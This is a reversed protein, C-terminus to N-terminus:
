AALKLEPEAQDPTLGPDPQADIKSYAENPTAGGFKSHPRDANYYDIWKGLGQRLETGTEFAHIYVCEYKLSRWLREIFVNDMWRGKGDMSVQVKAELLVDVFGPCTFQSGQDTNFIAPKGYTVMAEQLAEICFDAEMSSSLKWSLVKRTAWDMVAVLYLFGKRMPIYTIDSCWVQNPKDIVMDKLLYRYKKHEPHPITTRPQQYIPVLGMKAMLRRIRKRGVVHGLRRLHRAMQRSGYWPTEMFQKDIIAMLELNLATEPAPKHYMGSRSIGVLRCQAVISLKPHKPEVLKRRRDVSM